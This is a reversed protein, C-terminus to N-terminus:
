FARADNADKRRKIEAKVTHIVDADFDRGEVWSLYSWDVESWKKGRHQGFTVRPLIAPENTWEILKEVPALKLAEVLTFATVYADPGARHSPEALMRDLGPPRLFYRLTQNQHNPADPWLRLAAKYTCIWPKGGTMEDTIFQREFKANHACLVDAGIHPLPWNWVDDFPPEFAVDIDVIHHVASAEPPIAHGPNTLTSVPAGIEWERPAGVHDPEISLVNVFGYECIGAEPPALGTTELDVVLIKM